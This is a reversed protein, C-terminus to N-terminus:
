NLKTIHVTILVSWWVFNIYIKSHVVLNNILINFCLSEM